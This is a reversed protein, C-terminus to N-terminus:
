IFQCFRLLSMGVRASSSDLTEPQPKECTKVQVSPGYTCCRGGSVEWAWSRVVGWDAWVVTKTKMGTNSESVDGSVCVVWRM